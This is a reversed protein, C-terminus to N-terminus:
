INSFTDQLQLIYNIREEDAMHYYEGIENTQLYSHRGFDLHIGHVSGKERWTDYCIIEQVLPKLKNFTAIMNGRDESNFLAELHTQIAPLEPM